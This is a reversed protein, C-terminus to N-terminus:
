EYRLAEIPDLQAAKNAPYVGFVIGILSSILVTGVIIVPSMAPEIPALLSVVYSGLYGLAIGLIGGIVTLIVAELLFQFLINGNTAGISKRIGIERTRETVTVLMINMIGIGGVVLSIAAVLAVFMTVINLVEDVQALMDRFNQFSYKDKNNHKQELLLNMEQITQNAKSQDAVLVYYNGFRDTGFYDLLTTIPVYVVSATEYLPSSNTDESVGVIDFQKVGNRMSISIKEGVVDDRGFVHKALKDDIVIVGSKNTIDAEVLFRGYLMTVVQVNRYDESTGGIYVESTKSPDRRAATGSTQYLPVACTVNDSIMLLDRDSLTFYDSNKNSPSSKVSIAISEAGMAALQDQTQKKVGDGISTIMIVSGIGIIIGLMTLTSRMKNALVSSFASTLSEFINM